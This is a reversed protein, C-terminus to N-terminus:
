NGFTFITRDALLAEYLRTVVRDIEGLPTAGLAERVDNLYAQANM